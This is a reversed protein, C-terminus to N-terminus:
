KEPPRVFGNLAMCDDFDAAAKVGNGVANGVAAGAVFGPAGAAAFGAGGNRAAIRCSAEVQAQTVTTPATPGPIWDHHACGALTSALPIFLAVRKM